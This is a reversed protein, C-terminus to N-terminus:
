GAMAPAPVSLGVPLREAEVLWLRQTPRTMAVYLAAAGRSTEDVIRAPDVVIVSDFELGKADQPSLVSIPTTLGEAGLSVRTGFEGALEAALSPVREANAIVAVTGPSAIQENSRIAEAATGLITIPWESQRVSTSETVPLGHAIAMAEAASAIQSPTRYNVTLEELHWRDGQTWTGVLPHLADQWTGAASASAAQAIDGVVTFSRHPCRRRLMRWQMPSLEQAEDIVVHGYIWTRDTAAQEATTARDGVEAFNDALDKANILGNLEMNEIAQKANVLDRGRQEKARRRDATAVVDYEGLQQAAEDLLAIDSVTFPAQRSRFLLLRQQETWDPTLEALWHRRSYLDRLLKQPTLPLWATNLAVRVDYSSRLDERLMPLDTEDVTNGQDRLQAAWQQALEALVTKVFTVRAINHPKGGQRARAIARAVLQPQLTVTDGSVDMQQPQAPVRQRSHVARQILDAMQLSGKLAAVAPVDESTATVGPFLGGVSALVVGSEGLSPLVAEIYRLFASSPGVILVGSSRLRDRHAYLLFAARHLAVATKGTGPGGQVVLVGALPSRIIRDQEAQITEVIDHMRGTRQASLSALLAGEGQLRSRNADLLDADFIEDEIRILERGKSFLHRRARTGLPTKATAQYFASAQPVRWDLLIPSQDEDRLGIRGIYRFVPEGGDAEGDAGGTALELRGFALREHVQRLQAIRDEYMRAFTDRESRSQHHGGVDLRRIADLQERATQQLLDLRAYLKTLYAQERQLENDTM